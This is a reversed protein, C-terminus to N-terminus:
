VRKDRTSLPMVTEGKQHDLFAIKLFEMDKNEKLLYLIGDVLIYRGTEIIKTYRYVPLDLLFFLLSYFIELVGVIELNQKSSSFYEENM